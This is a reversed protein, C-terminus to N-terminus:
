RGSGDAIGQPQPDQELNSRQCHRDIVQSEPTAHHWLYAAHLMGWQPKWSLSYQQFDSYSWPQGQMVRRTPVQMQPAGLDSRSAWEHHKSSSSSSTTQLARCITVSLKSRHEAVFVVKGVKKASAVMKTLDIFPKGNIDEWIINQPFQTSVTCFVGTNDCMPYYSKDLSREPVYSQSNDRIHIRARIVPQQIDKITVPNYGHPQIAVTTAEPVQAVISEFGISPFLRTLNPMIEYIEKGHQPDDKMNDALTPYLQSIIILAFPGEIGQLALDEKLRFVDINNCVKCGLLKLEQHNEMTTPFAPSGEKAFAKDTVVIHEWHPRLRGFRRSPDELDEPSRARRHCCKFASM